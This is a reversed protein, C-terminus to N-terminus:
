LGYFTIIRCFTRNKVYPTFELVHMVQIQKDKGDSKKKEKKEGGNKSFVQSKHLIKRQAHMCSFNVSRTIQWFSIFLARCASKKQEPFLSCVKCLRKSILPYKKKAPSQFRPKSWVSPNSCLYHQQPAFAFSKRM